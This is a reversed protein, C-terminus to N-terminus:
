KAQVATTGAVLRHNCNCVQCLTRVSKGATSIFREQEFTKGTGPCTALDTYMKPNLEKQRARWRRNVASKQARVAESDRYAKKAKKNLRARNKALYKARHKESRAKAGEKDSAYAKRRKALIKAKNKLYNARNRAKVAEPDKDRYAKAAAIKEERHEYYYKQMYSLETEDGFIRKGRKLVPTQQLLNFPEVM